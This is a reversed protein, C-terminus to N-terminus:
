HWAPYAEVRLTGGTVGTVRLTNEGPELVMIQVQGVPRDWSGWDPTWTGGSDTSRLVAPRGADFRLWEGAGVRTSGAIYGNALNEIRPHDVDGTLTLVANYVRATGPNFVAVDEPSAVIDVPDPLLEDEGYWDSLRAFGVSVTASRDEWMEVSVRPMSQVRGWAWRQRRGEVDDGDTWIRVRGGHYLRERIIDVALNADAPTPEVLRFAVRESGPRKPAPDAGMLDVVYSAGTLTAISAYVEQESEVDLGAVPLEWYEGPRYEIRTVRRLRM